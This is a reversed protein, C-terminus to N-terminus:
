KCHKEIKKETDKSYFYYLRNLSLIRMVVQKFDESELDCLSQNRTPQQQQQQQPKTGPQGLIRSAEAKQNHFNYVHEVLDLM